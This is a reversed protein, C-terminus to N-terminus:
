RGCVLLSRQCGVAGSISRPATGQRVSLARGGVRNRAELLLVDVGAEILRRAAIGAAGAGVVVVAHEGTIQTM